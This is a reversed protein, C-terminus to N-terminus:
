DLFEYDKPLKDTKKIWVTFDSGIQRVLVFQLKEALDYIFNPKIFYNPLLGTRNAYKITNIIELNLCKECWQVFNGDRYDLKSVM